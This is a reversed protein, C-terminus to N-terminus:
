LKSQRDQCLAIGDPPADVGDAIHQAIEADLEAIQREILTLRTRSQRKLVANTQVHSRNKMRTREKVLGARAVQLEKLELLQESVLADPELSLAGGMRALSRADVADTKTRAGCVQAFRRAQRPSVKM